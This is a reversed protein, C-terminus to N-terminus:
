SNFHETELVQLINEINEKESLLNEIRRKNEQDPEVLTLVDFHEDLKRNEIIEFILAPSDHYEVLLNILHYHVSKLVYDRVIKDIINMYSLVFQTVYLVMHKKETPISISAIGPIRNSQMKKFLNFKSLIKKLSQPEEDPKYNELDTTSEESNPDSPTDAALQRFPNDDSSSQGDVLKKFDLFDPHRLNVLNRHVALHRENDNRCSNKMEDIKRNVLFSVKGRLVPFASLIENSHQEIEVELFSTMEDIVILIPDIFKGTLEFIYKKFILENFIISDYAADMNALSHEMQDLLEKENITLALDCADDIKTKVLDLFQKGTDTKNNMVHISNGGLSFRIRKNYETIKEMVLKGVRVSDSMDEMEKASYGLFKLERDLKLISNKGQNKIEPLQQEITKAFEKFLNHSLSAIGCRLTLTKDLEDGFIELLRKRERDRVESIPVKDEIEKQNRNIVAFFGRDIYVEKNRLTNLVNNLTERGPPILDMKTLVGITRKREPDVTKALDLAVSNAIEENAAQIALILTNEESIFEMVLDRIEQKVNEPQNHVTNMIIGPLDVLQLNVVDPATYNLIIKQNSVTKFGTAIMQTQREIERTVDVPNEFRTTKQTNTDVFEFFRQSGPVNRLNLVLPCRTVMDAGRPLFELGVISELVSSKGSSQSGLVVIQPFKWDIKKNPSNSVLQAVMQIKKVLSIMSGKDGDEFEMTTTQSPAM